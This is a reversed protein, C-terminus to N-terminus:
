LILILTNEKPILTIMPICKPYKKVLTTILETRAKKNRTSLIHIENDVVVVQKGRYTPNASAKLILQDEKSLIKNMKDIM